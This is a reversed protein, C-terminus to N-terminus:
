RPTGPWCRRSRKWRRSPDPRSEAKNTGFYIGYVAVHGTGSIDRLLASADAAVDQKMEQEEVIIVSYGRTDLASVNVSAHKSGKELRVHLYVPSRM